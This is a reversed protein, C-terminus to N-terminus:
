KNKMDHITDLLPLDRTEPLFLVVLGAIIPFVGYIIWPLTPLYVMLTMLLPAATAGCRGAVTDLGLARARLPLCCYMIIQYFDARTVQSVNNQSLLLHFTSSCM